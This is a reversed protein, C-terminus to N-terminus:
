ISYYEVDYNWYTTGLRAKILDLTIDTTDRTYSNSILVVEDAQGILGITNSNNITINEVVGFIGTFCNSQNIYVNYITNPKEMLNLILM